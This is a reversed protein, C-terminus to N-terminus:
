RSREGFLLELLRARDRELALEYIRIALQKGEAHLPAIRELFLPRDEELRRIRRRLAAIQISTKLKRRAEM